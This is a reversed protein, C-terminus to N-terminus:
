RHNTPFNSTGRCAPCPKCIGLPNPPPLEVSTAGNCTRCNRKAYFSNIWNKVNLRFEAKHLYCLFLKAQKGNDDIYQVDPKVYNWNVNVPTEHGCCDCVKYHYTKITM